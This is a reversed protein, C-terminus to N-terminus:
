ALSNEKNRLCANSKTYCSCCMRFLSLSGVVTGSFTRYVSPTNMMRKQGTQGGYLIVDNEFMRFSDRAFTTTQGGYLIVDNEFRAPKPPTASITQGGYLIVDNEFSRLSFIRPMATQGGYLIVDNEFEKDDDDRAVTQKVEM